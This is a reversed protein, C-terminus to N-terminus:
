NQCQGLGDFGTYVGTYDPKFGDFRYFVHFGRNHCWDHCLGIFCPILADICPDFISFGVIRFLDSTVGKKM